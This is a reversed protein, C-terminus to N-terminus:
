HGAAQRPLGARALDDEAPGRMGALAADDQRDAIRVDDLQSVGRRVVLHLGAIADEHRRFMEPVFQAVTEAALVARHAILRLYDARVDVAACGGVSPFIASLM